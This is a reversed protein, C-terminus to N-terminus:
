IKMREVKVEGKKKADLYNARSTAVDIMELIEKAVNSAHFGNLERWEWETKDKVDRPDVWSHFALTELHKKIIQWGPNSQDMEYLAQGDYLEKEEQENLVKIDPNDM